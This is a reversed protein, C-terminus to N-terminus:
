TAFRLGLFYSAPHPLQPLTGHTLWQEIAAEIQAVHPKEMVQFVRVRGPLDDDPTIVRLLWPAEPWDDYPASVSVYTGIDFWSEQPNVSGSKSMSLTDRRPCDFTLPAETFTASAIQFASDSGRSGSYDRRRNRGCGLAAGAKATQRQQCGLTCHIEREEADHAARRPKDRPAHHGRQLCARSCLVQLAKDIDADSAASFDQQFFQDIDFPKENDQM